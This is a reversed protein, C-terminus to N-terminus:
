QNLRSLANSGRRLRPRSQGTSVSITQLHGNLLKSRHALGDQLEMRFTAVQSAGQSKRDIDGDLCSLRRAGRNRHFHGRSYEIQLRSIGIQIRCFGLHRFAAQPQCMSQFM